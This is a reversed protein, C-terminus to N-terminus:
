VSVTNDGEAEPLPRSPHKFDSRYDDAPAHVFFHANACLKKHM